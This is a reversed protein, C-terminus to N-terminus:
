GLLSTATEATKNELGGLFKGALKQAFPMYLEPPITGFPTRMAKPVKGIGIDDLAQGIFSQFVPKFRKTILQPNKDIEKLTMDVYENVAEITSQKLRSQYFRLAVLAGSLGTIGSILGNAALFTFDM